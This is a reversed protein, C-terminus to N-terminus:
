RLFSKVRSSTVLHFGFLALLVTALALILLSGIELRYGRVLHEVIQWASLLAWAFAIASSLFRSWRRRLLVGAFSTGHLLWIMLMTTWLTTGHYPYLRGIFLTVVIQIIGVSGGVGTGILALKLGVPWTETAGEVATGVRRGKDALWEVGWVVIHGVVWIVGVLPLFIIPAPHGEGALVLLLAVVVALIAWIAHAVRKWIRSEPYDTM